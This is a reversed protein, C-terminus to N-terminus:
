PRRGKKTTRKTNRTKREPGKPTTAPPKHGTTRASKTTHRSDQKTRKSERGKAKNTAQREDRTARPSTATARPRTQGNTKRGRDQPRRRAANAQQWVERRREPPWEEPLNVRAFEGRHQIAALDYARAADLEEDFLGLFFREGKFRFRAYYKDAAKSYCVGKFRSAANVHKTSNWQNEELTCIRLNYRCNNLRNGDKHDVIMGKPPKMIDRHMFVHKSGVCRAAYGGSYLHWNYGSLWEYDAADMYAYLGEVLQIPKVDGEPTPPKPRYNRCVKGVPTPKMQGYRGPQNACSPRSPFGLAFGAMAQCKDWWAYICNHCALETSMIEGKRRGQGGAAPSLGARFADSQAPGPSYYLTM